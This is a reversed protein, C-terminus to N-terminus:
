GPRRRGGLLLVALALLGAATVAAGAALRPTHYALDLRHEGAPVVVGLQGIATPYTVVPRGDVAAAWGRDFTTAAVFFGGGPARYRVAVRGGRDDIALLRAEGGATPGGAGVWHDVRALDYGDARAGALAAFVTPHFAVAPVFRHRPLVRPNSFFLAPTAEEGRAQEALRREVPKRAVMTGVNWAAFLRRVLAAQRWDERLTTLAHRAWETLMLDYDKNLAYGIGWLNGSYPDLRHLKTRFQALEPEDGRVVLEDQSQVLEDSFIRRDGAALLAEAAPPPREYEAAPVRVVLARGCRWLDGGVLAVALAAVVAVPLRRWRLLALVAAAAVATALTLLSEAALFDVGASATEPALPQGSGARVIVTAASPALRAALSLAGASAAVALALALPLDGAALDNRRRGDVLRQWGLAAVIPLVALALLLFKEPYRVAGLLPLYRHLLDWLPNHRGLGLFVGVVAAALWVGRRPVPWRALASLALVSILLGPYISVLYPFHLDHLDWGYYLREGARAPDGYARPLVLEVLRAPPASWTAAQGVDLPRSRPSDRLHEATPLIQIGALLAAVALPVALRLARAPRRAESAALLALAVGSILVTVPEGNLMQLALAVACGAAPWWWRRGGRRDDAPRHLAADGATLVWPFWAMGLFLTFAHLLSVFGSAATYGVAALAAAGLGCGLRRALKWAGAFAAAAHLLVLLNLAYSPPVALALWSPPYFAGYSPNSLVPQGGHLWPNWVPPGQEALRAFDSRLPLHFFAIDRTALATASSLLPGYLALVVATGLAAALM